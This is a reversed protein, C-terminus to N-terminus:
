TMISVYIFILQTAKLGFKHMLSLQFFVIDCVFIYFPTMIIVRLLSFVSRDEGASLRAHQRHTWWVMRKHRARPSTQGLVIYRVLLQIGCFHLLFVGHHREGSVESEDDVEASPNEPRVFCELCEM